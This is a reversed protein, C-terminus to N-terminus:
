AAVGRRQTRYDNRADILEHALRIPRSRVNTETLCEVCMPVDYATGDFREVVLVGDARQDCIFCEGSM